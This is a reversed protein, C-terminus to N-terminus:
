CILGKLSWVIPIPVGQRGKAGFCYYAFIGVCTCQPGRVAKVCPKESGGFIM